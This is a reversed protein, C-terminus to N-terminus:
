RIKVIRPGCGQSKRKQWLTQCLKELERFTLEIKEQFGDFSFLPNSIKDRLTDLIDETLPYTSNRSEIFHIMTLLEIRRLFYHDAGSSSFHRLFASLTRDWTASADDLFPYTDGAAVDSYYALHYGRNARNFDNDSLLLNYFEEERNLQGMKISGFYLSLKVSIHEELKFALDLTKDRTDSDLRSIHYIAHVRKAIENDSKGDTNDMYQQALNEFVAQRSEPTEETWLARFYRNIEPRLVFELFEPYPDQKTLCANLIIGAIMFESFQEHFTGHVRNKSTTFMSEFITGGSSPDLNLNYRNNIEDILRDIRTFGGRAKNKYIMWAAYSWLGIMDTQQPYTYDTRNLERNAMEAICESFLEVRTTITEPITMEKSEIIWLLMTILLPSDLISSLEQNDALLLHIRDSYEQSEGHVECFNSIYTKAKDISWNKVLIRTDFKNSFSYDNIHTYAYQLRCTLLIPHDFMDSSEIEKEQESSIQDAMEDFGDFYFYPHVREYDFFPYPNITLNEQFCENIYEKFDFHYDIGKEKLWLYFPINYSKEEKSMSLHTLFTKALITTKGYGAEGYVLISSSELLLNVMADELPREFIAETKGSAITYTPEIYYGRKFVDGLSMSFCTSTRRADLAKGQTESIKQAFFRTLGKLKGEIGALLTEIDSFQTIWNSSENEQYIKQIKNVFKIVNIDEVHECQFSKEFEAPTGTHASLEKQFRRRENWTKESIFVLCPKGSEVSAIYEEETISVNSSHYYIGGYRRDIVILSIDVRNLAVLCSEHSHINPEVPFDPLEFASVTVNRDQLKNIIATRHEHLDYDTSLVSIVWPRLM